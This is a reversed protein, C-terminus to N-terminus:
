TRQYLREVLPTYVGKRKFFIPSLYSIVTLYQGTILLNIM